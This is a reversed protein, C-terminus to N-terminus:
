RSRAFLTALFECQQEAVQTFNPGGPWADFHDGGYHWLSARAKTAAVAAAGPPASRDVDGIQVLTPCTIRGACRTPRYRLLEFGIAADIRNCWTPGALSTYRDFAGSLNIAGDSGPPAVIPITVPEGGRLTSLASRLGAWACRAVSAASCHRLALAAAAWGDVLPTLAIVAAVDDRQAAVTIVHGGGLSIGWLVVRNADVGPLARAVEVATHLDEVQRRMSVSQRPAGSSAGFGRYDAAFVDAGTACFMEAFPQLGTDITGGVGHAMVIIPRGESSLLSDNRSVLRWGRCLEGASPFEVEDISYTTM